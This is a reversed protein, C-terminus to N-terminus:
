DHRTVSMAAETRRLEGANRDYRRNGDQDIDGCFECATLLRAKLIAKTEYQYIELTNGCTHGIPLRNNWREFFKKEEEKSM